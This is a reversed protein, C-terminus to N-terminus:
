SDEEIGEFYGYGRPSVNAYSLSTRYQAMRTLTEPHAFDKAAAENLDRLTDLSSRRLSRDMGPPDTVSLVPDGKSRCQM